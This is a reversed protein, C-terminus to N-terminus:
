FYGYERMAQKDLSFDEALRLNSDKFSEFITKKEQDTVAPIRIQLSDAFNLGLKEMARILLFRMSKTSLKRIVLTGAEKRTANLQADGLNRKIAGPEVNMARGLQASFSDRDHVFDEFLAVHVNDRGFVAAYASAVDHLNFIKAEGRWGQALNHALYGAFRKKDMKRYNQTYYSPILDPQKRIVLLVAVEDAQPSFYKHLIYPVAIAQRRRENMMFLGESFVNPLSDSLTGISHGAENHGGEVVYDFWDKYINKNAKTGYFGSEFARGLFNIAKERHLQLFLGNQLSTSAAKPYGVHLLLRKM